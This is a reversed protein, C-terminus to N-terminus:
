VRADDPSPRPLHMTKEHLSQKQALMHLLGDALDDGVVTIELDGRVNLDGEREVSTTM